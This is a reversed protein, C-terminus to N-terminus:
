KQEIDVIWCFSRPKSISTLNLWFSLIAQILVLPCLLVGMTMLHIHFCIEGEIFVEDSLLGLVEFTM